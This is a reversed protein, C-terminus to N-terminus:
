VYVRICKYVKTYMCIYSDYMIYYFLVFVTEPWGDFGLSLHLAKALFSERGSQPAVAPAPPQTRPLCFKISFTRTPIKM